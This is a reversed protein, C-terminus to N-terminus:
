NDGTRRRATARENLMRQTASGKKNGCRPDSSLHLDVYNFSLDVRLKKGPRFREGWEELQKAIIPWDIDPDDFRKALDRQTRDTVSVTVNTDDCQAQKNSGFKKQLLRELKPRLIMHWYAIPVLVVDQETDRSVVKKNVAVKWETSYHLLTPM